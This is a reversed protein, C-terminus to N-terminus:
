NTCCLGVSVLVAYRHSQGGVKNLKICAGIVMRFSEVDPAVGYEDQMSRLLAAVFFSILNCM